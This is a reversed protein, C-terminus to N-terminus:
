KAGNNAGNREVCVKAIGDFILWLNCFIARFIVEVFIKNGAEDVLLATEFIIRNRGFPCHPEHLDSRLCAFKNGALQAFIKHGFIQEIGFGVYFVTAEIKIIKAFFKNIFFYIKRGIVGSFAGDVKPELVIIEALIANREAFDGIGDCASVSLFNQLAFLVILASNLM